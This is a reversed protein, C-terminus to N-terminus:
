HVRGGLTTNTNAMHPVIASSTFRLTEHFCAKLYAVNGVEYISMNRDGVVRDIEARLKSQVRPNNTIDRLM